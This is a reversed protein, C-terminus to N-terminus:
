SWQPRQFASEVPTKIGDISGTKYMISFGLYESFIAGTDIEILSILLIFMSIRHWKHTSQSPATLLTM